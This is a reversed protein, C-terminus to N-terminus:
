RIFIRSVNRFVGYMIKRENDLAKLRFLEYQISNFNGRPFPVRHAIIIM